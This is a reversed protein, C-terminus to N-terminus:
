FALDVDLFEALEEGLAGKHESGQKIQDLNLEGLVAINEMQFMLNNKIVYSAGIGLTLIIVFFNELWLLLVELGSMIAKFQMSGFQTHNYEFRKQFAFHWPYYLGFTIICFFLSRLYPWYFEDTTGTFTMTQNGFRTNNVLITRLKLWKIPAYFGCSLVTLFTTVFYTKVYKGRANQMGMRISRWRTRALRYNRGAYQALAIFTFFVVYNVGILVYKAQPFFNIIAAQATFFIVVIISLKVASICLERGSGTYQFRDGVFTVHSWIYKRTKTRAWFNYIGFTVITLFFNVLMQLFLESTKGTFQFRHVPQKIKADSLVKVKLGTDVDEYSEFGPGTKSKDDDNM